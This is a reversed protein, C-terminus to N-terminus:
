PSVHTRSPPPNPTRHIDDLFYQRALAVLTGYLGIVHDHAIDVEHHHVVQAGIEHHFNELVLHLPGGDGVRRADHKGEIVIERRCCALRRLSQSRHAPESRPMSDAIEEVAAAPADVMHDHFGTEHRG